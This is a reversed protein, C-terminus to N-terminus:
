SLRLLPEETVTVPGLLGAPIDRDWRNVDTNRVIVYLENTGEVLHDTVDTRYPYWALKAVEGSYTGDEGVVPWTDEGVVPNLVVTAAEYVAGLDLVVRSPSAGAPTWEITQHYLGAGVTFPHQAFGFETDPKKWDILHRRNTDTADSMRLTWVDPVPISRAGAGPDDLRRLHGAELLVAFAPGGAGYGEVSAAGDVVVVRADSLNTSTVHPRAAADGPALVVLASGYGPVTLPVHLRDGVVEYVDLPVVRGTEADWREPVGENPVELVITADRGIWDWGYGRWGPPRKTAVPFNALFYVPRGDRRYQYLEVTPLGIPQTPMTTGPAATVRVRRGIGAELADTIPRYKALVAPDTGGPDDDFTGPVHRAVGRGTSAASGFLAAVETALEADRGKAEYVPLRGVAVLTGGARVFAALIQMRELAITTLDPLVVARYAAHNRRIRGGRVSTVGDDLLELPMIDFERFDATLVDSVHNIVRDSVTDGVWANEVPYALAVEPVSHGGTLAYCVRAVYDHVVPQFSFLNQKYGQEDDGNNGYPRPAFWNMGRAMHRDYRTKIMRTPRNLEGDDGAFIEVHVRPIDFLHAASSIMRTTIGAGANPTDTGGGWSTDLTNFIMDASAITATAACRFYSGEARFHAPVREEDFLQNIQGVGHDASWRSLRLYYAEAFRRSVVDWFDYSRRRDAADALRFVADLVASTTPTGVVPPGDLLPYGKVSAFYAPLTTSFPLEFPQLRSTTLTQPMFAVEDTFFGHFTSGVLDRVRDIHPEYVFEILRDVAAPNFVDIWYPRRDIVWQGPVPGAPPRVCRISTMGYQPDGGQDPQAVRGGASGSPTWNTDLVIVDLGHDAAARTLAEFIRFYEESLWDWDALADAGGTRGLTVWPGGFDTGATPGGAELTIGSINAKALMEIEHRAHDEFTGQPSKPGMAGVPTYYAQPLAWRPPSAFGGASLPTTPRLHEIAPIPPHMLGPFPNDAVRPLSPLLARVASPLLSQAASLAGAAGIGGLFARRTVKM